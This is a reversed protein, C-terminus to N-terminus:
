SEVLKLSPYKVKLTEFLGFMLTSYILTGYLFTLEFPIAAVLCAWFGAITQPYFSSGFWVGFDAIIWHLFVGILSGGLVTSASVNKIFFHGVMVMAAFAIYTYHWGSYFGYDAGMTLVLGIDSLFLALMPFVLAMLRNKFYSGGFLAVAGVGSFNALVKFDASLPAIIRLGIILLIFLILVLTRNNFKSEM